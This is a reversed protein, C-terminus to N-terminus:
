IKNAKDRLRTLTVAVVIFVIGKVVDQVRSNLGWMVMGNSLFMCALAGFFINRMKADQGGTLPMGGLIMCIMVNFHFMSGTGTSVSGTRIMTLIAVVGGTFGAILFALFKTKRVNIGAQEAAASGAGLAKCHRGFKTFLFVYGVIVTAVLLFVLEFVPNKLATLGSCVYEYASKHLITLLSGSIMYNVSLTLIFDSLGTRSYLYGNLAGICSGVALAVLINLLVSDGGLKQALIASLAVNAALSFDHVGQAYCFIVGLGGVMYLFSQTFVTKVNYWSFIRGQSTIGFIALILLLGLMPFYNLFKTLWYGKYYKNENSTERKVPAINRGLM